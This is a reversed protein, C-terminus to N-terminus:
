KANGIVPEIKQVTFGADSVANKILADDIDTKASVVANKNELDVKVSSVGDISKLASEVAKSCHMCHMGDIYVIKKVKDKGFLM